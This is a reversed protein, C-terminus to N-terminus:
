EGHEVLSQVVQDIVDLTNAIDTSTHAASVSGQKTPKPFHYIGREILAQRYKADFAFDHSTILEWWNTPAQSGFYAVHASGQRVVQAEVGQRSFIDRMGSVLTETQQDLQAYLQLSPDSLKKLCALSATVPIPHANYTGAVLVRRNPDPDVALELLEAKGALAAIPYGNAMAKGFTSLDPTVGAVEQYGGLSARFGTKVEDFVLVFGYQDALQRLGELYGPAPPIVGVNQLVPEMVLAAIAYKKVMAEVAELDNYEVPHLLDLEAQPIGATMPCKPYEGGVVPKGGLAEVSDMLNIAVVNQNGNYGGQMLIVHDRGTFARAVRISQATAESGSNYFQVREMTPVCKLFLEALTGEQETPGSGYNSLGQEMAAVVAANVDPDSHGLIYPAFGAHYDIYKKGDVDWMYAGSAKAFAIAPSTARNVSAMGGPIWQKNRELLQQSRSATASSAASTATSLSSM